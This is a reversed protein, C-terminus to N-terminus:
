PGSYYGERAQVVLDKQNVTVHILHYTADDGPRDPTYALSYQNRLEEEIEAYIQEIPLKKKVEFLQGGTEKSIRELIKKGDPHEQQPYRGGGGRGMGGGGYGGHGGYGGRGGNGYADEDAFLISYVATDARQASAIATNLSEKSGHDVGDTLIILAKRGQQKKMLENSALYISDYLLTGGGGHGHGRGSGGGGSGGAGGSGASTNSFSPTDLQELGARLKERSATLDQLLEVERDFHILFAKDKNERLIHDFFSYSASKEQDLVRRQSLSTDVLLGLTLPQDSERAFYKITQARADEQLAFDSQNLNPIIKGHKDRVAAYVTVLKVETSIKSQSQPPTQQQSQSQPATPPTSPKPSAPPQPPPQSEQQNQGWSISGLLIVFISLALTAFTIKSFRRAGSDYDLTTKIRKRM